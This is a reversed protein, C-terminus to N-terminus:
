HRDSGQRAFRACRGRYDGQDRERRDALGPGKNLAREFVTRMAPDPIDAARDGEALPEPVDFRVEVGRGQLIPIDTDLAKASLPNGVLALTDGTGLGDNELLPSIDSIANRDLALFRLSDLEALTAIDSIANDRLVLTTLAEFRALPAIDSIAIYSLSLSTLAELQALSAIDSIPNYGVGLSTLARLGTLPAVDVIQNGSLSLRTLSTLGALPAINSIANNSLSLRTLSTLGALPAIHLIANYDLDLSTLAELGALPAIDFIANGWLNLSTLSSLEALPTLDSVSGSSCALGVLNIAHELGILQAVGGDITLDNLSAMDGRTIPADQEKGLAEELTRRLTADPIEVLADPDSPEAMELVGLSRDERPSSAADAVALEASLENAAGASAIGLLVAGLFQNRRSVKREIWM